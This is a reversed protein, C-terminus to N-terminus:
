IGEWYITGITPIVADPHDAVEQGTLDLPSVSVTISSDVSGVECEGVCVERVNFTAMPVYTVVFLADGGSDDDVVVRVGQNPGPSVGFSFRQGISVGDAPPQCSLLDAISCYVSSPYHTQQTLSATSPNAPLLFAGAVLALAVPRWFM